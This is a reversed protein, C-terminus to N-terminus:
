YVKELDKFFQINGNVSNEKVLYTNLMHKLHKKNKDITTVRIVSNYYNTPKLYQDRRTNAYPCQILMHIHFRKSDASEKEEVWIHPFKKISPRDMYRLIDARNQEDSKNEDSTFIFQYITPIKTVQAKSSAQSVKPFIIHDNYVSAFIANQVDAKSIHDDILELVLRNVDMGKLYIDDFERKIVESNDYIFKAYPRFNEHQDFIERIPM